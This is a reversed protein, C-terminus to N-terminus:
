TKVLGVLRGLAKLRDWAGDPPNTATHYLVIVSTDDDPPNGGRWRHVAELIAPGINAPNSVDLARILNLLGEEGLQQARDNSAEIIADSFLVVIDGPVLHTAYQPYNTPDVIGLPLNSIGTEKARDASIVSPSNQDFYEWRSASVNQKGSDALAHYLLPRPHGANCVIFHDTPAFYTAIVATAFRGAKALRGFERNLKRAFETPNPTNMNKRMLARFQVAWDGAETGHGAMDVLTFRVIQGAACTSVLSLDGGRADGHHPRSYFFAEFGSVTVHEAAAENGGWVEM